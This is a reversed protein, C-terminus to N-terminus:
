ASHDKARMESLSVVSMTLVFMVMREVEGRRESTRAAIATAVEIPTAAHPDAEGCDATILVSGVTAVLPSAAVVSATGGVMVTIPAVVTGVAVSAGTVEGADCEVV